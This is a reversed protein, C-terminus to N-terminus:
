ARISSSLSSVQLMDIEGLVSAWMWVDRSEHRWRWVFIGVQLRTVNM